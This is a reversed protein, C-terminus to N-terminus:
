VNGKRCINVHLMYKPGIGPLGRPGM